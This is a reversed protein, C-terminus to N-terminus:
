VNNVSVGGEELFMGIADQSSVAFDPSWNSDRFFWKTTANYRQLPSPATRTIGESAADDLVYVDTTELETIDGGSTKLVGYTGMFGGGPRLENNNLFLLLASTEDEVGVFAPLLRVLSRLFDLEGTLEDVQVRLPDMLSLMPGITTAQSLIALEQSVLDLRAFLLDLDDASASLRALMARKTETSLDGFTITPVLGEKMQALYEDSLGSLQVLDEGLVFFPRLAEVLDHGSRMIDAVSAIDSGVVPLWSVSSLVPLYRESAAFSDEARGLSFSATGFSFQTAEEKAELLADRADVAHAFVQVASLVVVAMWCTVVIGIVILVFCVTHTQPHQRELYAQSHPM